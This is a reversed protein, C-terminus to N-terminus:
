EMGTRGPTEAMMVMAKHVTISLAGASNSLIDRRRALSASREMSQVNRQPIFLGVTGGSPKVGVTAINDGVEAKSTAQAKSAKGRPYQM